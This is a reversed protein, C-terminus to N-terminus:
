HDVAILGNNRDGLSADLVEPGHAERSAQSKVARVRGSSTQLHRLLVLFGNMWMLSVMHVASACLSVCGDVGPM